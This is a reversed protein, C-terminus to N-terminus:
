GEPGRCLMAGNVGLPEGIWGDDILKRCTQIGAGMFTDPACGLLVNNKRATEVLKQAESTKISIPKESYVSKGAELCQLSLSYHFQPPTLNIVLSIEPDKLIEEVTCSKAGPTAELATQVLEAKLDSVAEVKLWPFKQLNKFYISSINGCGIVAVKLPTHISM